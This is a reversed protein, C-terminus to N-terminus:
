PMCKEALFSLIYGYDKVWCLLYPVTTLTTFRPYSLIVFVTGNFDYKNRM